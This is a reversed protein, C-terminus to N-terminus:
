NKKQKRSQQRKLLAGFGLATASGLITLPEPVPKVDIHASFISGSVVSGADRQYVYLTNEGSILLDEIGTQSASLPNGVNSGFSNNLPQGNIYVGIPNPGNPDGLFDDVKAHFDISASAINEIPISVTFPFAYLVSAAPLGFSTGTSSSHWNIWRADSDAELNGGWASDPIILKARGCIDSATCGIGRAKAFDSDTFATSKLLHTSEGTTWYTINDDFLNLRGKTPNGPPLLGNVQGSKLWISAAFVKSPILSAILCVALALKQCMITM